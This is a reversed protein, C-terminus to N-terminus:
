FNAEGHKLHGERNTEVILTAIMDQDFILLFPPYNMKFNQLLMPQRDLKNESSIERWDEGKM